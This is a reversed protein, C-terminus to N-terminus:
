AAAESLHAVFHSRKIPLWLHVVDSDASGPGERLMSLMVVRAKPKRRCLAKLVRQAHPLQDSVLILAPDRMQGDLAEEAEDESGVAVCPAHVAMANSQVAQRGPLLPDQRPLLFHCM